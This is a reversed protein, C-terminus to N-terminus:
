PIEGFRERYQELLAQLRASEQEAQEARQREQEARQREQEAHEREQQALGEAQQAVEEPAPLLTGDALAFRLWLAQVERYTGEWRTLWLDLKKSWLRGQLDAEIPRYEGDRLAFGAFEGTAPHYWYYEPVRVLDQYIQKKKGKDVAATSDSLLEIVVDPGKGGEAWIVWSKRERKPVGLVAFLDPARFEPREAQELSYYLGMNAAVYADERSLWHRELTTALLDLQLYHRQSEMPVGDSYPLEDETPPREIGAEALLAEARAM